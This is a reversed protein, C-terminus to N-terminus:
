RLPKWRICLLDLLILNKTVSRIRMLREYYLKVVKAINFRPDFKIDENTDLVEYYFSANELFIQQIM